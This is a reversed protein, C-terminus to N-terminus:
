RDTMQQYYSEMLDVRCDWSHHQVSSKRKQVNDIAEEKLALQIKEVWQSPELAVSILGRFHEEIVKLPCSVIPIGTALYEVLRLPFAVYAWVDASTRYAMTLVNMHKMYNPVANRHKLGLFHVNPLQELGLFAV